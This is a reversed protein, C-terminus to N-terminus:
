IEPRGDEPQGHHHHLVHMIPLLPDGGGASQPLEESARGRARQLAERVSVADLFDPVADIRFSADYKLRWACSPKALTHRRGGTMRALAGLGRDLAVPIRSLHPNATALTRVDAYSRAMGAVGPAYARLMWLQPDQRWRRREAIRSILSTYRLDYYPSAFRCWHSQLLALDVHHAPMLVDANFTDAACVSSAFGSPDPLLARLIEDARAALREPERAFALIANQAFMARTQEFFDDKSRIWQATNRLFWRGEIWTHAGDIMVDCLRAYGPYAWMMHYSTLSVLGNTMRVYAPVQDVDLNQPFVIEEHPLYLAAAVERAVVADSGMVSYQTALQVPHGGAAVAAAIVRSDLGGSLTCLLRGETHKEISCMAESFAATVDDEIGAYEDPAVVLDHYRRENITFKNAFWSLDVVRARRIRRISRFPTSGDIIKGYSLLQAIGDECVEDDSVCLVSRIISISTSVMMSGHREGHYIPLTGWPDTLVRAANRETDVALALFMGNASRLLIEDRMDILQHPEHELMSGEFVFGDFIGMTTAADNTSRRARPVAAGPHVCGMSIRGEGLLDVQHPMGSRVLLTHLREHVTPDDALLLLPGPPLMLIHASM